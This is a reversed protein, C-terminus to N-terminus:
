LCAKSLEDSEDSADWLQAVAELVYTSSELIASLGGRSSFELQEGDKLVSLGFVSDVLTIGHEAAIKEKVQPGLRTGVRDEGTAPIHLGVGLVVNALRLANRLKEGVEMAADPSTFGCVDIHFDTAKVLTDAHRAQLM